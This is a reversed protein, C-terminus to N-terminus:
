LWVSSDAPGAAGARALADGDGQVSLPVQAPSCGRPLPDQCGRLQVCLPSTPPINRPHLVGPLAESGPPARCGRQSAATGHRLKGEVCLCLLTLCVPEAPSWHASAATFPSVASAFVWRGPTSSGGVSFLILRPPGWCHGIERRAQSAEAPLPLLGLASPGHRRVGSPLGRATGHQAVPVRLRLAGPKERGM